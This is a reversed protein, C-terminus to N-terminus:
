RALLQILRQDALSDISMFARDYRHGATHEGPVAIACAGSDAASLCGNESDELVLMNEPQIQFRDAASLYMEPHPKGQSVDDGTLLFQLRPILDFSSLMQEAFHRKSSTAVAYPIAENELHELLEFLGPMAVLGGALLGSYLDDSEQQLDTPSDSLQFESILVAIAEPAPRGMMKQQIQMTFEFGRRALLETGVQYYLPETDFM